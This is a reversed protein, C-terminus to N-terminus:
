RARSVVDVLCRALFGTRFFAVCFSYMYCEDWCGLWSVEPILPITADAATATATATCATCTGPARKLKSNLRWSICNSTFENIQNYIKQPM